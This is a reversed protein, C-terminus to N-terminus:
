SRAAEARAGPSDATRLDRTLEDFHGHDLFGQRALERQKPDSGALATLFATSVSQRIVIDSLDLVSADFARGEIMNRVEAESKDAPPATAQARVPEAVPTVHNTVQPAVVPHNKAAAVETVSVEPDVETVTAAQAQAKLLPM